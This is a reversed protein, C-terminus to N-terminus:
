KLVIASFVLFLIGRVSLIKESKKPAGQWFEIYRAGVVGNAIEFSMSSLSLLFDVPGFLMGVLIRFSMAGVALLM